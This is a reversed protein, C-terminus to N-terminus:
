DTKNKKNYEEPPIRINTHDYLGKLFKLRGLSECLGGWRNKYLWLNQYEPLLEGLEFSLMARDEQPLDFVEITDSANLSLALRCAHIFLALSLLLEKQFIWTKESVPSRGTIEEILQEALKIGRELGSKSFREVRKILRNTMQNFLLAGTIAADKFEMDISHNLQGIRLVAEGWFKEDSNLILRSIPWSLDKGKNREGCWSMGAAYCIAPYSIAQQQHHGFDGWDTLMLGYAKNEMAGAAASEINKKATKWRGTLSVWSSTGPCVYFPIREKNFVKTEETFDFDDEYGWVLAIINTPLYKIYEPYNRIIDGWFLAIHGKEHVLSFLQKLFNTYLQGKGISDCLEKNKGKGLDFTEDCNINVKDSTFLPLLQTLLDDIFPISDSHTPNISFNHNRYDGKPDVFGGKVEALYSLSPHDLWREMHAFCNQNPILEIGRKQCYKDLALIDDKTLPDSEAWIQEYGQYAFTHEIYLQFQNYKLLSLIDVITLLTDLKPVKNRSIDLMYCRNPIDPYDRIEMCPIHEGLNGILQSLTKISYFVGHKDSYEITIANAAVIIHYGESPISEDMTFAICSPLPSDFLYNNIEKFLYKKVDYTGTMFEISRPIPYLPLSEIKM